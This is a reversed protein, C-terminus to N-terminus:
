HWPLGEVFFPLALTLFWYVVPIAFFLSDFRDLVGGHGPLLRGSDKVGAERKFLSEALDGIQAVPSVLLGALAGAVPGIPVNLWIGFVGWAYLAGIVVTGVVASLAGEVTKAPSVSPLLKRRGFARGGFYACTDGVWAMTIPFAVLAAGTFGRGAEESILQRLMPVHALSGGVFIAGFLTVAVSALPAGNVGRRWIALAATFLTFAVVIAALWRPTWVGAPDRAAALVLLMALGLGAIRFPRTGRQRAMDFLEDAGVAALVMIVVTLVCGGLYLIAIAAPVGIGAVALRQALEGKV